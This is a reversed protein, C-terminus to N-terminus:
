RIDPSCEKRVAARKNYIIHVRSVVKKSFFARLEMFYQIKAGLSGIFHFFPGLFDLILVGAGLNEAEVGAGFYLFVVHHNVGAAGEDGELRLQLSHHRSVCFQQLLQWALRLGYEFAIEEAISGVLCVMDDDAIHGVTRLADDFLCGEVACLHGHPHIQHGVDGGTKGAIPEILHAVSLEMVEPVARGMVESGIRFVLCSQEEVLIVHLEKLLAAGQGVVTDARPEKDVVDIQVVTTHHAGAVLEEERLSQGDVGMEDGGCADTSALLIGIHQRLHIVVGDTTQLGLLTMEEICGGVQVAGAVITHRELTTGIDVIGVTAM